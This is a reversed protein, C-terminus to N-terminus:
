CFDTMVSPDHLGMWSVVIMCHVESSCSMFFKSSMMLVSFGSMMM